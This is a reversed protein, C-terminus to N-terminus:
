FPLEDDMEDALFTKHISAPMAVSNRAQLVVFERGPHERALRGAEQSASLLSAHRYRPPRAGDPCWVLYFAAESRCITTM